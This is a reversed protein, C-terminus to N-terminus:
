TKRTTRRAIVTQGQRAEVVVRRTRGTPPPPTAGGRGSPLGHESRHDASYAPKGGDGGLNPSHSSSSSSSPPPPPPPPPPPSPGLKASEAAAIQHEVMEVMGGIDGEAEKILTLLRGRFAQQQQKQQHQHVLKPRRQQSGAGVGGGSDGTSAALQRLRLQVIELERYHAMWLRNPVRKRMSFAPDRRLLSRLARSLVGRVRAVKVSLAAGPVQGDRSGAVAAAAAAAVAAPGSTVEPVGGGQRGAPTAGIERRLEELLSKHQREIKGVVTYVRDVSLRDPDVGLDEPAAMTADGRSYDASMTATTATAATITAAGASLEEPSVKLVGAHQLPTSPGTSSAHRGCDRAPAAAAAAVTATSSGGGGLRAERGQPQVAVRVDRGVM